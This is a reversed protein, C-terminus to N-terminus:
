DSLASSQATKQKKILPKPTEPSVKQNATLDSLEKKMRDIVKQQKIVMLPTYNKPDKKFDALKKEELPITKKLYPISIKPDELQAFIDDINIPSPTKKIIPKKINVTDKPKAPLEVIKM